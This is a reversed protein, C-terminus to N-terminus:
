AIMRQRDNNANADDANADDTCVGPVLNPMSVEYKAYMHVYTEGYICM